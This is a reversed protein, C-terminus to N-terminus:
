LYKIKSVHHPVFFDDFSGFFYSLLFPAGKVGSDDVLFDGQRSSDFCSEVVLSSITLSELVSELNDREWNDANVDGTGALIKNSSSESLDWWVVLFCPHGGLFWLFLFAEVGGVDTFFVIMFIPDLTHNYALHCLIKVYIISSLKEM